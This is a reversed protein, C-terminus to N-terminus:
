NGNFRATFMEFEASRLSDAQALAEFDVSEELPSKIALAVSSKIDRIVTPSKGAWDKALALARELPDDVLEQAIGLAVAREPGIAKGSFLIQKTQAPGVRQNLLWTCGGGPHLGISSFTPALSADPGVIIVDCTLAISFGAGVAPGHVAAITPIPLDVLGLFSEYLAKLHDRLVRIPRTRDGFVNELNAGACFARGAGTVVVARADRDAAIDAIAAKIADLTPWDLANLREPSNLSLIRVDGESELTVQSM